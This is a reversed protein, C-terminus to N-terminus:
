FSPGFAVYGMTSGAQGNIWPTLGRAVGARLWLPRESVTFLTGLEAGVDRETGIRSPQGARWGGGAEAFLSLAVKEVGVPLRWIGRRILFLPVRLEVAGTVVRTFQAPSRPFGRLDNERGGSGVTVGPIVAVLDSSAGGMAFAPALPGSSMTGRVRAALVWHSYGPLPLALYGRLALRAEQGWASAGVQWNRRLLGSLVWGDEVSISFPQRQGRGVAFSLVGGATTRGSLGLTTDLAIRHLNELEAGLRLAADSRWRRWRFTGGATADIDRELLRHRVTSPPLVFAGPDWDQDASADLTVAGWRSYEGAVAWQWRASNLDHMVVAGYAAQGRVDDGGTIAGAYFGAAGADQVLPLWWTPRLRSVMSYSAEALDTEPAPEPIGAANAPTEAIGSGIAAARGAVLAFGDSLVTTYYLTGDPGLAPDRAGTPAATLQEAAGGDPSVRFIQPLGARESTFLVAAGDPSWSPDDDLSPGDVLVRAREPSGAPWVVLNWSGELHRSGAFWTGDPSLALRSWERGAPVAVPEVADPGSLRVVRTTGSGIQIAGLGSDGLSFPRVLRNVASAPTVPGGPTWRHLRSRVEVPTTFELDAIVLDPGSWALDGGGNLPREAVVALTVADRVVVRERARGDMVVYALRKGDPSLRLRPPAWLGRAIVTGPASADASRWADRFDTWAGIDDGGARRLPGYVAFPWARRSSVEVFRPIVAVGRTDAQRQFFHSGWAYPMLGNPWRSSSIYLDSPKPWDASARATLLQRHFGGRTRGAGTIRSEYYTALGESVWTPRYSNPFLGPARGLVSQLGGWIGGARDLHFVHTLEHSIVLRLWDDYNSLGLEGAPPALYIAIRNRPTVTAFGNPFDLNDYLVLEITGRPPRLENTLLQWAREAERGARAALTAHEARSHIRFHETRWARWDGRPDTQAPLVPSWLVVLLAVCLASPSRVEASM